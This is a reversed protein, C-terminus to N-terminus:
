RKDFFRYLTARGVGLLKAAKAKNGGTQLLADKILEETLKLRGQKATLNTNSSPMNLGSQDDTKLNNDKVDVSFKQEVSSNWSQIELPLHELTIDGEGCRVSAFQLINILQRINGPWSYSVLKNLADQEISKISRGTEKSITAVINGAIYSIDEPRARLPPLILPVVCLRYYFDERFTGNVIMEDLNRNTAAIIRVDARISHEGGVKEFVKEQLVRLLKVQMSLPMEAVEDLFLTGGEALEFRGKKDRIAGTFAGRVHGFLESELINEPLAGCNVPVFPGANRSSELHIARAALEKGTGSEGTILVSYESAGVARITEFIEIMSKSVGVMGHFNKGQKLRWNLENLGSVDKFILLTARKQGDILLPQSKIKLRLEVGDFRVFNQILERKEKAADSPGNKFACKGFCLGYPPFARHCDKGIINQRQQKTIKEAASNIFLVRRSDDHVIVGDDLLDLLPETINNLISKKSIQNDSM